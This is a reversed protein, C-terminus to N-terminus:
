TRIIKFLIKYRNNINMHRNNINMHESLFYFGDGEKREVLVGILNINMHFHYLPLRLTWLRFRLKKYVQSVIICTTHQSVDALKNSLYKIKDM